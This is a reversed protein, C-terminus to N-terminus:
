SYVVVKNRGLGKALYLASDGNSVFQELTCGEMAPSVSNAGISLTLRAPTDSASSIELAEIAKRIEEAVESCESGSTNRLLVAFGDDAWRAVLDGPKFIAAAVIKSIEVLAMDGKRHGHITNFTKLGDIDILLIGLQCKDDNEEIARLWEANLHQDFHRRNALQTLTDSLSLQQITRMQWVLQLQISVRLKVIVPNYPKTIYDVAGMRLGKEENIDQNLSTIFIVPIDRTEHIDRMASLAQYGDVQPMVIDMLIIDPKTKKATQIAKVGNDAVYVTYDDQLIQVLHMLSVRSDDVVLVSGKKGLGANVTM